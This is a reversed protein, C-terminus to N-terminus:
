PECSHRLCSYMQKLTHTHTYALAWFVGSQEYLNMLPHHNMLEIARHHMMNTTTLNYSKISQNM